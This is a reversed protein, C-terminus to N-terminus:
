SEWPRPRAQGLTLIWPFPLGSVRVQGPYRCGAGLFARSVEHSPMARPRLPHLLGLVSSALGLTGEALPVAAGIRGGPRLLRRLRAILDRDLRQRAGSGYGLIVSSLSERRLPPHHPDALLIGEGQRVARRKLLKGLLKRSPVLWVSPGRDMFVPGGEYIALTPGLPRDAALLRQLERYM